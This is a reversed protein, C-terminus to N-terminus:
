PLADILTDATVIGEIQALQDVRSSEMYMSNTPNVDLPSIDENLLVYYEGINALTYCTM